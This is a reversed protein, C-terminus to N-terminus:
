IKELITNLLKPDLTLFKSDHMKIANEITSIKNSDYEIVIFWKDNNKIYKSFIEEVKLVLDQEDKGIFCIRTRDNCINQKTTIFPNLELLKDILLQDNEIKVVDADEIYISSKHQALFKKNSEIKQRNKEFDDNTNIWLENNKNGKDENYFNLQLLFQHGFYHAKQLIKENFTSFGLNVSEPLEFLHAIKSNDTEDINFIVYSVSHTFKNINKVFSLNNETSLLFQNKEKNFNTNITFIKNTKKASDLNGNTSTFNMILSGFFLIFIVVFSLLFTKNKLFSM